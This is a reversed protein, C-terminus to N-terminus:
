VLANHVTIAAAAVQRYRNIVSIAAVYGANVSDSVNNLEYNDRYTLRGLVTGSPAAGQIVAGNCIFKNNTMRILCGTDRLATSSLNLGGITAAGKREFVCSDVLINVSATGYSLFLGTGSAASNEVTCRSLVVNGVNAIDVSTVNDLTFVSDTIVIDNDVTAFNSALGLYDYNYFRCNEVRLRYLYTTSAHNINICPQTGDGTFTCNRITVDEISDATYQSYLYFQLATNYVCNEVIINKTDGHSQTNNTVFIFACANVGSFADFDQSVNSVLINECGSRFQLAATASAGAAGILCDRVTINKSQTSFYVAHDDFTDFTCNFITVNEASSAAIGSSESATFYCDYIRCDTPVLFSGVLSSGPYGTLNTKNGNFTINSIECNTATIASVGITGIGKLLVTGKEGYFNLNSATIASGLVYTGKPFFVSRNNASAYTFAAQIATADNTTGDGVAGFDKVSVYQALKDEVNTAVSGVFPPTYSVQSADTAASSNISSTTFKVLAGVHLGSVFTITDADTEVYAYQAGPGYQNVGDVFVSLSNTGPQYAMTTLNFVTQGATATQIEQQNTFNVFNSNIGVINDYTAILVDNSDKLLFKYQIGDTLWIEGSGSVRGSADLVIPNSWPTSGASTTYTIAPTTTGALYTYIKGGTLVNGSNDFFQAAVGGVPSLNVAM